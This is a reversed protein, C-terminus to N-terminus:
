GFGFGVAGERIALLVYKRLDEYSEYEPLDLQNFCTHASPLGKSKHVRHIQFKQPGHMGQLAKFGDLPVKSTGTVFQILLAKEERNFARATQWFWQIVQSDASYGTYETNNRLDDIDFDPLGSILLELELENFISILQKPILEHFGELFSKIQAKIATTLKNYLPTGAGPNIVKVQIGPHSANWLDVAEKTGTAWQWFILQVPAKAHQALAGQPALTLATLALVAAAAAVKRSLHSRAKMLSM